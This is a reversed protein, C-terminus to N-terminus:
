NAACLRGPLIFVEAFAPPDTTEIADSVGEDAFKGELDGFRLAIEVDTRGGAM